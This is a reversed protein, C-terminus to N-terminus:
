ASKNMALNHQVLAIFIGPSLFAHKIYPDKV